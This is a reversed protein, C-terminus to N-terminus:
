RLSVICFLKHMVYVRDNEGLAVVAGVVYGPLHANLMVKAFGKFLKQRM